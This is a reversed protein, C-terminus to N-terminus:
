PEGFNSFVGGRGAAPGVAQIRRLLEQSKLQEEMGLRDADRQSATAAGTLAGPQLNRAAGTNAALQQYQGRVEGPLRELSRETRGRSQNKLYQEVQEKSVTLPVGKFRKEFDAAIKQARGVENSAIARLYEHRAQVIQDRQKVLYNDLEGQQAWHGMDVGFSKAILEAPSRYEILTGDGKFVPVEGTPLPMDYRAYTKQLAGPLGALNTKPLPPSINLARNLAVGGPILRALSDALMGADENAVGRLIGVPVDIVPPVPIFEGRKDLLKDGGLLQTASGAFLGRSLDAGLLGKGAEYILASMGMGRLMTNKFGTWYEEGGAKPFTDFVGMSTRLPFSLFQKMLPNALPGKMFVMPTNLDNVGFQTTLVFRHLDPLFNGTLQQGGRTSMRKFLHAAYNRNFWESKEFGKMMLEATKDMMGSGGALHSDLLNHMSPGIGLVNKGGTAKGAFQFTDEILKMKEDPNLFVRGLAARKSAYNAMEAISDGFAGVVEDLRGATAAMTFPQMLNMVMSSMNIGLHTVYFWKALGGSFDTIRTKSSYDGFEKLKAVFEAGKPHAKAIIKGVFGDALTNAWQKTQMQSNYITLLEDGANNLAGPVMADRMLQQRAPAIEGQFARDMMAGPSLRSLLEPPVEDGVAVKMGGIITNRTKVDELMVGRAARDAELMAETVPRTDYVTSHQVDRTYKRHSMEHNPDLTMMGKGETAYLYQAKKRVLDRHTEGNLNLLGKEEAWDLFEPDLNVEKSTLPAVRDVGGPGGASHPAFELNKAQMQDLGLPPEKMGESMQVKALKFNNRPAWGTTGWNEPTITEGLIKVLEKQRAVGDEITKIRQVDADGILGILMEKGQISTSGEQILGMPGDGEQRMERRFSDSLRSVKDPDQKYEGTKLFHEMDGHHDIIEVQKAYAYAQRHEMGERGYRTLLEDLKDKHLVGLDTVEIDSHVAGSARVELGNMDAYYEDFNGWRARDGKSLKSYQERFMAKEAKAKRTYAALNATVIGQDDPAVPDPAMDAFDERGRRYQVRRRYDKVKRTTDEGLRMDAAATAKVYDNVLEHEASGKKYNDPLLMGEESWKGERGLIKNFRGKLAEEQQIVNKRARFMVTSLDENVQLAVPVAPSGNFEDLLTRMKHLWPLSRKNNSNFRKAVSFFSKGEALAKAGVPSTLFMMWVWPNTAVEALARSFGKEGGTFKDALNSREAPTLNNPSLFADKVSKFTAEGELFQSMAVGPADYLNVPQYSQAM